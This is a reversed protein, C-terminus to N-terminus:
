VGGGLPREGAAFGGAPARRTKPAGGGGAGGREWRRAKQGRRPPPPGGARPPPPKGEGAARLPGGRRPGATPPPAPSPSRTVRALSKWALSKSPPRAPSVKGLSYPPCARELRNARMKLWSAASYSTGTPTKVMPKPIHMGVTRVCPVSSCFLRKTGLARRPSSTHDCSKESGPAPESTALRWDHAM